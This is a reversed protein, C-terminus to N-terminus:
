WKRVNDIINKVQEAILKSYESYPM